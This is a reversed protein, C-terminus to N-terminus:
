FGKTSIWICSWCDFLSTGSNSSSRKCLLASSSFMRRHITQESVGLLDAIQSASLNLGILFELQNEPIDFQLQGSSGTYIRPTIYRSTDQLTTSDAETLVCKLEELGAILKQQVTTTLHGAVRVVNTIAVYYHVM